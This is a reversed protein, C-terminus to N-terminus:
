RFLLVALIIYGYFQYKANTYMYFYHLYSSLSEYQHAM